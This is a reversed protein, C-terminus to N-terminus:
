IRPLARTQSAELIAVAGTIVSTDMGVIRIVSALVTLIIATVHAARMVTAAWPVVGTERVHAAPPVRMANATQRVSVATSVNWTMQAVAVPLVPIVSGMLMAIIVTIADKMLQVFGTLFRIMDAVAVLIAGHRQM